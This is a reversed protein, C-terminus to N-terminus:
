APYLLCSPRRHNREDAHGRRRGSGAGPAWHETPVHSSPRVPRRGRRLRAARPDVDRRAPDGVPGREARRVVAPAGRHDPTRVARHTEDAAWDARPPDARRVVADRHADPPVRGGAPFADRVPRSGGRGSCRQEAPERDGWRVALTGARAPDAGVLRGGGPDADAAPRAGLAPDREEDAVVRDPSGNPHIGAAAVGRVAVGGRRPRDEQRAVAEPRRVVAGRRDERRVVAGRQDERRVAAGPRDERRMVPGPRDERRMVPGPRGKRRMVAGRRDERRAAAGQRDTRDAVAAGPTRAPRGVPAEEAVAHM